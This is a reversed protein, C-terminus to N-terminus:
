GFGCVNASKVGAAPYEERKYDGEPPNLPRSNGGAPPLWGLVAKRNPIAPYPRNWRGNSLKVAFGDVSTGCPRTTNGGHEVPFLGQPVVFLSVALVYKVTDPNRVASLPTPAGSTRPRYKNQMAPLLHTIERGIQLDCPRYRSVQFM